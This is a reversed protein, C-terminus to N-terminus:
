VYNLPLNSSFQFSLPMFPSFFLMTAFHFFELLKTANYAIFEKVNISMVLSDKRETLQGRSEKEAKAQSITVAM